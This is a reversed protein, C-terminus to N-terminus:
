HDEVVIHPAEGHHFYAVHCGYMERLADNSEVEDPRCHAVLTRNLCAVTDTYAAVVSIDHTALIITVGQAKLDRLLAYFTDTTAADVGTTPEDMLLLDPDNALARAIFVRQRQGGSLRSIPRDKLDDLGTKRIAAFAHERDDLTPRKGIGIRGFRGMLVAQYVTIPFAIDVSLIQPVYGVRARADALHSVPRGFVLASGSDPKLLGLIVRLLTTKGAGNPGILVAVEGRNISLSVDELAKAAGLRVTLNRIEVAPGAYENV